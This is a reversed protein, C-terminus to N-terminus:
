GAPQHGGGNLVQALTERLTNLTYPKAVIGKFGYDAYNAMVPDAAYGSSVIARAAPDCALLLNIAEQGGIGGPVTLDMIVAAFPEGETMAKKYMEVAEGGSRATASTYGLMALMTAVLKCVMEEDDMVLIRAGTMQQPADEAKAKAIPEPRVESAPLYLTFITGYGLESHVQLHGGHKTIIAYTTALGLGSGNQKTTFYPDFIRELHQPAIGTGEDRVTIRVYKGPGVVEQRAVTVNALDIFLRGGGPMAQCANITLNSIVQQIQGKDVKAPWLDDAQHLVLKVTSGSLDFRAVEEVLSALGVDEKVPDGGKAFTLLQKTLRLARNMSKEADDLFKVGRHDGAMEEKALSINGYVGMLINNFDHAIGGALTGVSQLKQMKQLEAEAKKRDTLDLGCSYNKEGMTVYGWAIIKKSGDKCTVSTEMPEIPSQTAIARKVRATWEEAIQQRYETDPYALPWWQEITPLDELTYGFLEIFKPNLYESIQEVGVSLHIALPFSEVMKRFTAESQRLDEVAKKRASIERNLMLVYVIVVAALFLLFFGVLEYFWLSQWFPPAVAIPPIDLSVPGGASFLVKVFKMKLLVVHGKLTVSAM